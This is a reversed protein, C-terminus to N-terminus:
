TELLYDAVPAARIKLGYIFTLAMFSNKLFFPRVYRYYFPLRLRYRHLFFISFITKLHECPEANAAYTVSYGYDARHVQLYFM